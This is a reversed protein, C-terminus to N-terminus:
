KIMLDLEDNENFYWYSENEETPEFNFGLAEYESQSVKGMNDLSKGNLSTPDNSVITNGNVTISSSSLTNLSTNTSSGVMRYISGGAGIINGSLYVGSINSLEEVSTGSTSGMLGGIYRNAEVNGKVVINKINGKSNSGICLGALHDAKVYGSFISNEINSYNLGVLGGVKGSSGNVISNNINIYSINGSEHSGVLGGVWEVGNVDLNSLKIKTIYGRNTGVLGGTRRNGANIIINDGVIDQIVGKSNVAALGGAFPIKGNIAINKLNVNQVLEGSNVGILGGAYGGADISINNATINNIKSSSNSGVMGGINDYEGGKSKLNINKLVINELLATKNQGALAGITASGIINVDELKLNSILVGEIYGFLGLKSVDPRNIYLGKITNGNGEFTGKFTRGQFAIPTFGEGTILLENVEKSVYSRKRNFDLSYILEVKKNEFTTGKNVLTSLEVLDEISKIYCIEKNLDEKVGSGCIIGPNSDEVKVFIVKSYELRKSEKNTILKDKYYLEVKNIKGNEITIVGDDPKEGDLKLTIVNDKNKDCIINGNEEIECSKPNFNGGSANLQTISQEVADLYFEASRLLSSEKTDNIISLVIPIAITAIIALIVIVALLEILTFGKKM